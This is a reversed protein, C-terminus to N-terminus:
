EVAPSKEVLPVVPLAPLTPAKLEHIRFVGGIQIPSAVMKPKKPKILIGKGKDVKTSKRKSVVQAQDM